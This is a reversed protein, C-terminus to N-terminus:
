PPWDIVESNATQPANFCFGVAHTEWRRGSPDSHSHASTERTSLSLDPRKRLCSTKCFFDKRRRSIGNIYRRDGTAAFENMRSQSSDIRPSRHDGSSKLLCLSSPDFVPM